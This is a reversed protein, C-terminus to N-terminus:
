PESGVFQLDSKIKGIENNKKFNIYGLDKSVLQVKQLKM